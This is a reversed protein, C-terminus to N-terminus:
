RAHALLSVPPPGAADSRSWLFRSRRNSALSLQDLKDRCNPCQDLHTRIQRELAPDNLTNARFAALRPEVERCTIGGYDLSPSQLAWIGAALVVVAVVVIAGRGVWSRQHPRANLYGVVRSFEGPPCEDWDQSSGRDSIM